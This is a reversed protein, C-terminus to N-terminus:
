IIDGNEKVEKAKACNLNQCELLKGDRYKFLYIDRRHRCIVIQYKGKVTEFSNDILIEGNKEALIFERKM